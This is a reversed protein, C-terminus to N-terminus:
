DTEVLNCDIKTLTQWSRVLKKGVPLHPLVVGLIRPRWFEQPDGLALWMLAVWGYKGCKGRKRRTRMKRTRRTKARHFARLGKNKQPSLSRGCKGCKRRIPNSDSIEFIRGVPQIIVPRLHGPIRANWFEAGFEPELLASDGTCFNTGSLRCNGAAEGQGELGQKNPLFFFFLSSGGFFAPIKREASSKFDKSFLAFVCLLALFVAFRLFPFTLATIQLYRRNYYKCGRYPATRTSNQTHSKSM